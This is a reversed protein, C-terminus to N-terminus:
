GKRHQTESTSDEIESNPYTWQQLHPHWKFILFLIAFLISGSSVARLSGDWRSRCQKCLYLYQDASSFPNLPILVSELFVVRDFSNKNGESFLDVKFPFFKSPDFEEM